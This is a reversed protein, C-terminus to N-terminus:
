IRANEKFFISLSIKVSLFVVVVKESKYIKYILSLKKKLGNRMIFTAYQVFKVFM